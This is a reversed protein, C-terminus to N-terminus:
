LGRHKADAGAKILRDIMAANGYQSALHLPTIGERNRTDVKAGAKILLDASEVDDNYVAWHVATAGDVQPANVDAKQQILARLAARDRKMAADAVDSRGAPGAPGAPGAALYTAGAFFLLAFSLFGTRRIMSGRCNRWIPPATARAKRGFAM